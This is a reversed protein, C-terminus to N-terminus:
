RNRSPRGPPRKPSRNDAISVDELLQMTRDMASRQLSLRRVLNEIKRLRSADDGKRAAGSKQKSDKDLPRGDELGILLESLTLGLVNAVKSLNGFSINKEGREIQGIYTRHLGSVHAFEEQSWTKAARLEHVRRGLLRLLENV